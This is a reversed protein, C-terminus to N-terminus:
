PPCLFLKSPFGVSFSFFDCFNKQGIQGSKALFIHKSLRLKAVVGVAPLQPM